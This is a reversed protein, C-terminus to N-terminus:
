RPAWIVWKYAPLQSWAISKNPLLRRWAEPYTWYNIALPKKGRGAPDPQCPTLFNRGQMMYNKLISKLFVLACCCCQSTHHHHCVFQVCHIENRIWARFDWPPRRQERIVGTPPFPDHYLPSKKKRKRFSYLVHVQMEFLRVDWPSLALSHWM